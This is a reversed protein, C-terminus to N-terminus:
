EVNFDALMGEVFHSEMTGDPEEQVINCVLVHHGATLTLTMDKSAGPDVDEIEGLVQIGAGDEDFTGDAAKPLATRALDTKVFVVEHVDEGNNTAVFKVSGAKASAPSPAIRFESMALNVTTTGGNSSKEDDDGCGWSGLAGVLVFLTTFRTM